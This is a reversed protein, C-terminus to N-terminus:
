TINFRRSEKLTYVMFITQSFRFIYKIFISSNKRLWGKFLKSTSAKEDKGIKLVIMGTAASTREKGMHAAAGFVM